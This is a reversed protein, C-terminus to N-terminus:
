GVWKLKRRGEALAKVVTARLEDRDELASRLTYKGQGIREEGFSYWAGSKSIVGDQIAAEALDAYRDIGVGWLIDIEAEEFPPAVKNKVVKITHVNGVQKTGVQVKDKRTISLRISAYFKLANGGTTTVPSGYVVGIKNRMQNLFLLCCNGTSVVRCLKRMSQSMLRAHLGPHSAGMEGDLEAQPTLAAVSDVVILSYAGSAALEQVVGLAQEGSSPQCFDLLKMDVGPGAAAYRTDLAHEADVFAAREGLRQCSAVAHLALTTKGSSEQGFVEVIRGKPYGGCGMALDLSLAGSPIAEIGAVQKSGQQTIVGAGYKKELSAIAETRADKGKM